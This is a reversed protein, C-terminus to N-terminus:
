FSRRSRLGAIRLLRFARLGLRRRWRRRLRRFRARGCGLRHEAKMGTTTPTSEIAYLRNMGAARLKRRAAYERTLKHFGPYAAGSLFDADLSVIV